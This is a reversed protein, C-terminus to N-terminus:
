VGDTPEHAGDPLGQVEDPLGQRGALFLVIDREDCRRAQGSGIRWGGTAAVLAHRQLTPRLASQQRVALDLAVAGLTDTTTPDPLGEARATTVLLVVAETLARVGPGRPTARLRQAELALLGALQGTDAAALEASPTDVAGLIALLRELSRRRLRTILARVADAVTQRGDGAPSAAVDPHADLLAGLADLADATERAWGGRVASEDGRPRNSLPLHEAFDSM